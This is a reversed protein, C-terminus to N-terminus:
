PTPVQVIQMDRVRCINGSIKLRLRDVDKLKDPTLGFASLPVLARSSTTDASTMNNALVGYGNNNNTGNVILAVNSYTTGDASLSLTLTTTGTNCAGVFQIYAGDLGAMNSLMSDWAYNSAQTRLCIDGAPPNATSTANGQFAGSATGSKIIARFDGSTVGMTADTSFDDTAAVPNHTTGEFSDIVFPAGVCTKNPGALRAVTLYDVIPLTTGGGATDRLEITNLKGSKLWVQVAQTNSFTPSSSTVAGYGQETGDEYKVYVGVRSPAASAAWFRITAAGGAGGDVNKFSLISRASMPTASGTNGDGTAVVAACAGGGNVLACTNGADDNEYKVPGDPVTSEACVGANPTCSPDTHGFVRLERLKVAAPTTFHTKAWYYMRVYRGVANLGTINDVHGTANDWLSQTYISTWVVDTALTSADNGADRAVQITYYGDYTTADWELQTRNIQTDAGLDVYIWQPNAGTAPTWFSVAPSDGDIALAASGSSAVAAARTLEDSACAVCLGTSVHACGTAPVCSDTTCMNDDDCSRTGTGTVCSGGSCKDGLTCADGDDCDATNDAHACTGDAPNCTDDTCVNDDSCSKAVGVCQGASCTDNNTCASGDDCAATNNTHVCGTAPACTDDTCPNTDACNPPAGGQCTGGSCTDATTCANGDDCASTNNAHQCSGANCTDDTCPNDDNCDTGTTCEPPPADSGADTGPDPNGDSCVGGSCTQGASCTMGCQGCNTGDTMTDVCSTGCKSKGGTCSLQCAGSSCVEDTGCKTGCTGCNNPDSAVDVCAGECSTQGGACGATGGAAGDSNQRRPPASGTCGMTMAATWTVLALVALSRIM